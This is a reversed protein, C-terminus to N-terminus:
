GSAAAVGARPQRADASAARAELYALLQYFTDKEQRRGTFHYIRADPFNEPATQEMDFFNYERCPVIRVTVPRGDLRIEESRYPQFLTRSQRALFRVLASQERLWETNALTEAWWADLFANRAAVDRNFFIVGSNIVFCRNHEWTRNEDILTLTVDFVHAFVDDVPKFLIADSDLFVVPEAGCLDSAHRMCRIKQVLLNEFRVAQAELRRAMASGPFRKLLAKRLRKRLGTKRANYALTINRLHEPTAADRILSVSDLERRWDIVRLNGYTSTLFSVQDGDLGFDYVLIGADPYVSRLHRCNEKMLFFYGSDGAMLFNMPRVADLCGRCPVM